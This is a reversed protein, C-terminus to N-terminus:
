KIMDISRKVFNNLAEGKLMGNQLLALDILQRVVKNHAAYDAFLSEKQAKLEEWKKDLSDVEDKEVTSIEEDKKGEQKKKLENRRNYDNHFPPVWSEHFSDTWGQGM